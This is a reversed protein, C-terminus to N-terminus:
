VLLITKVTVVAMLIDMVIVIVTVMVTDMIKIREVVVVVMLIDMRPMM